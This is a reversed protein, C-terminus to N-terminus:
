HISAGTAASSSLAAAILDAVEARSIKGSIQDGQSAELMFGVDEEENTLGVARLVCYTLGAARIANEGTYKHNLTGSHPAWKTSMLLSSALIGRENSWARVSIAHSSSVALRLVLAPMSRHINLRECPM